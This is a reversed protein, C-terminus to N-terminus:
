QLLKEYKRVCDSLSFYEIVWARIKERNFYDKNEFATRWGDAIQHPDQPQVLYGNMGEVIMESAGGVSTLVCPLGMSMAELAAVSFTETSSTLTFIDAIEYFPKVDSQVGFFLVREFVGFDYAMQKLKKEREQSGDGVFVLFFPKSADMDVLHKLASLSDEHRKESALSAAQLIVFASESIKLRARILRRNSDNSPCFLETDVGNYITTFHKRPIWYTKSWYDAQANCVSIFIENGSLLRAYILNQLLYKYNRFKINHISIFVKPKPRIRKLAYWVYFFSFIDFAIVTDIKNDLIIRRIQSAPQMDYRWRRPLTTFKAAELRILNAIPNDNSLSVVHISFHDRSLKNVLNVLMREAGRFVLSSILFLINTKTKHM